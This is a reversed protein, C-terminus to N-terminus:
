SKQEELKEAVTELEEYWADGFKRILSDKLFKYIPVKLSDGLKCAPKCISWKDYNVAEVQNKM